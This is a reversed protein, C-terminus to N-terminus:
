GPRRFRMGKGRRPDTTRPGQPMASWSCKRYDDIVDPPSTMLFGAIVATEIMPRELTKGNARRGAPHSRSRAIQDAQLAVPAAPPGVACGLSIAMQLM